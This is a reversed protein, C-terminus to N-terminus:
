PSRLKRLAKLVAAPKARFLEKVWPPAKGAQLLAEDVDMEPWLELLKATM